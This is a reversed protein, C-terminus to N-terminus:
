GRESGIASGELLRNGGLKDLPHTEVFVLERLEVTKGVLAFLYESWGAIDLPGKCVPLDVEQLATGHGEPLIGMVM